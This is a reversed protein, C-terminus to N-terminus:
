AALASLSTAMLKLAPPLPLAVVFRMQPRTSAAYQDVGGHRWAPQGPRPPSPHPSGRRPPSRPPCAARQSYHPDHDLIRLAREIRVTVELVTLDGEGASSLSMLTMGDRYAERIASKGDHLYYDIVDTYKAALQDVATLGDWVVKV